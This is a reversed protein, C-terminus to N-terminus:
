PRRITDRGNRDDRRGSRSDLLSVLKDLAGSFADELTAAHNTVAVPQQGAQRAELMCRMDDNTSRGASEDGLHVEVRTLDGSVHELASALEAEVHRVLAERGDINNDTSVQIEM